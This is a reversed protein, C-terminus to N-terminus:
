RGLDHFFKEYSKLIEHQFSIVHRGYLLGRREIFQILEADDDLTLVLHPLNERNVDDVLARWNKEDYIFIKDALYNEELILRALIKMVDPNRLVRISAFRKPSLYRAISLGREARRILRAMTLNALANPLQQERDEDGMQNRFPRLDYGFRAFLKVYFDASFSHWNHCGFPLNKFRRVFREPNHEMSFAKAIAVPATTLNVGETVGCLAFVADEVSNELFPRWDPLSCIETLLKHCAQVKRLSFGGNGVQPTPKRSGSWTYRPWPAGIYDYGFSCFIELADYFVFADLQYILIYDFDRFTEYFQPSLMLRSYTKVSQFFEPPFHAVLDNPAFYSFNKGEPAFFILPYNKLVKRCQALSIKELETLEHYTPIVM